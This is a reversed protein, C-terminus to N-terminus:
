AVIIMAVQAHRQLRYRILTIQAHARIQFRRRLRQKLKEYNRRPNKGSKCLRLEVYAVLTASTVDITMSTYVAGACFFVIATLCFWARVEQKTM